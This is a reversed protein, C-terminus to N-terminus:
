QLKREDKSFKEFSVFLVSGIGVILIILSILIDHDEADNEINQENGTSSGNKLLNYNKEISSANLVKSHVTVEDITGEFFPQGGASSYGITILEDVSSGFHDLADEGVPEGDIYLRQGVGEQITWVWNHWLGDALSVDSSWLPAPQVDIRPRGNRLYFDIVQGDMGEPDGQISFLGIDTLTTKFWLDISLNTESLDVLVWVKNDVGDFSLGKNKIGDTLTAGLVSANNHPHSLDETMNGDFLTDLSWYGYPENDELGSPENGEVWYNIVLYTLGDESMTEQYVFMGLDYDSIGLEGPEDDFEIRGEFRTSEGISVTYMQDSTLGITSEFGEIGRGSTGYHVHMEDITEEGLYISVEATGDETGLSVTESSWGFYQNLITDRESMDPYTSIDGTQHLFPEIPIPKEVGRVGNYEDLTTYDLEITNPVNITVYEGARNDYGPWSVIKYNYQDYVIKQSIIYDESSNGKFSINNLTVAVPTGTATFEELFASHQGNVLQIPEGDFSLTVEANISLQHDNMSEGSGTIGFQTFSGESVPDLEEPPPAAMAVIPISPTEITGYEGTYNLILGDGDFDGIALTPLKNDGIRWEKLLENNGPGLDDHLEGYLFIYSQGLIAYEDYGDGDVDGTEVRANFWYFWKDEFIRDLVKLVTYNHNADDLIRGVMHAVEHGVLFIEDIGDGDVDGTASETSRIRIDDRVDKLTEFNTTQDDYIWYHLNWDADHTTVILEDRADGDIDGSALSPQGKTYHMEPLTHILDMGYNLAPTGDSNDNWAWIWSILTDGKYFGITAVEDRGDGDFDGAVINHHRTKKNSGEWGENIPDWVHHVPEPALLDDFVVGGMSVNGQHVGVMAVEDLGDGDLDGVTMACSTIWFVSTKVLQFNTTEDDFFHVQTKSVLTKNELFDSESSIVLEDRGDGDLDGAVMDAGGLNEADYTTTYMDKINHLKDDFVWLMGEDTKRLNGIAIEDLDLLTTTDNTLPHGPSDGRSGITGANGPGHNTTM